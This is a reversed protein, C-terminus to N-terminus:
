EPTKSCCDLVQISSDPLELNNRDYVSQYTKPLHNQTTTFGILTKFKISHFNARCHAGRLSLFVRLGRTAMAACETYSFWYYGGELVAIVKNPWHQHLLKMM